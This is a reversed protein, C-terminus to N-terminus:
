VNVDNVAASTKWCLLEIVGTVSGIAKILTSQMHSTCSVM